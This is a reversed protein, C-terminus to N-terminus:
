LRFKSKKFLLTLRHCFSTIFKCDKQNPVRVTLEPTKPTQNKILKTSNTEETLNHQFAFPMLFSDTNLSKALKHLYVLFATVIM